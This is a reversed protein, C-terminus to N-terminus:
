AGVLDLLVAPANGDNTWQISRCFNPVMLTDGPHLCEMAIPDSQRGSVSEPTGRRGLHFIATICGELVSWIHCRNDTTWAFMDACTWRNLTFGECLVLRECNRYETPYPKQPQVIERDYQITQLAQEVHLSRDNRNWDYLRYTLDSAQQVEAFLVGKGASHVTGPEILFCDGKKPEIRHLLSVLDDKRLADEVEERTCSRNFGIYMESEPDAHVVIWAECKGSDPLGLAKAREESPHVQVSIMEEADIYKLMLPFRNFRNFLRSEAGFIGEPRTSVVDHLSSGALPGNTIMSVSSEHDVVEWSEAIKRETGTTRHFLPAIKSGGWCYEKYIPAFRFPYLPYNQSTVTSM